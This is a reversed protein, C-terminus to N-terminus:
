SNNNFIVSFKFKFKKNFKTQRRDRKNIFINFINPKNIINFM